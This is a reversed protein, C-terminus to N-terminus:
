RSFPGVDVNQPHFKARSDPFFILGSLLSVSEGVNQSPTIQTPPRKLCAGSVESFMWGM